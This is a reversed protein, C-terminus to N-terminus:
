LSRIEAPQVLTQFTTSWKLKHKPDEKQQKAQKNKDGQKECPIHIKSNKFETSKKILSVRLM